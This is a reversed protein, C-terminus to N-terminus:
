AGPPAAAAQNLTAQEVSWGTAAAIQEPTLTVRPARVLIPYPDIAPADGPHIQFHLHPPTTIANGTNGVTGIVTGAAIMQGAELPAWDRLHAYYYRYGSRGRTWVTLGGLRNTGIKEVWGDEVAVVPTGARAFLDNGQHSRSCGDRCYGYSSIFSTPGAVPFVFGAILSPTQALKKEAETAAAQAAALAGRATEVTQNAATEAEISTRLRESVKERERLYEDALARDSDTIVGPLVVRDAEASMDRGPRLRLQPQGAAVYSAAVRRTFRDRVTAYREAAARQAGEIEARAAQAEALTAEAQAVATQAAVLRNQTLDVQARLGALVPNTTGVGDWPGKPTIGATPDEPEDETPLDGEPPLPVLPDIPPVTVGEPLTTTTDGPVTSTTSSGDPSTTSTTPDATTTTTSSTGTGDPVTSSTSGTTPPQAGTAPGFAIGATVWVVLAAAAGLRKM